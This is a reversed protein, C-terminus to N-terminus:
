GVAGVEGGRAGIIVHYHVFIVFLLSTSPVSRQLIGTIILHSTASSEMIIILLPRM